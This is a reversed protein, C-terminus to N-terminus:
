LSGCDKTGRRVRSLRRRRRGAGRRHFCYPWADSGIALRTEEQLLRGSCRVRISPVDERVAFEVVGSRLLSGAEILLLEDWDLRCAVTAVITVTGDDNVDVSEDEETPVTEGVFILDMEVEDGLQLIQGCCGYVWDPIFVPLELM